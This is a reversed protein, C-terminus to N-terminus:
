RVRPEPQGWIKPKKRTKGPAISKRLAGLTARALPNHDCINAGEIIRAMEEVRREAEPHLRAETLCVAHCCGDAFAEASAQPSNQASCLREFVDKAMDYRRANMLAAGLRRSSALNESSKSENGSGEYTLVERLTEGANRSDGLQVLALILYRGAELIRSRGLKAIEENAQARARWIGGLIRSADQLLDNRRPNQPTAYEVLVCGYLHDGELVEFSDTGGPQARENRVDCLVAFAQPCRGGLKFIAEGLLQGCTIKGLRRMAPDPTTTYGSLAETLVVEAEAYRNQKVMAWGTQYQSRFIRLDGPEFDTKATEWVWRSTSEAMPFDELQGYTLSLYHGVEIIDDVRERRFFKMVGWIDEFVVKAAPYDRLHFCSQSLDMGTVMIEEPLPLCKGKRGDWLPQLVARAEEYKAQCFYLHGLRQGATMIGDCPNEPDWLEWIQRFAKVAEQNFYPISVRKEDETISPNKSLADVQKQTCEALRLGTQVTDRHKSGQLAKRGAWVDKRLGFAKNFFHPDESAGRVELIDCLQDGNEVAWLDAGPTPWTQRLWRELEEYKKERHLDTCRQRYALRCGAAKVDIVTSWDGKAIAEAQKSKAQDNKMRDRAERLGELEVGNKTEGGVKKCEDFLKRCLDKANGYELDGTPKMAMFREVQLAWLARQKAEQSEKLQQALLECNRCVTNASTLGSHQNNATIPLPTESYGMPHPEPPQTGHYGQPGVQQMGPPANQQEYLPGNPLAHQPIIDQYEPPMGLRGEPPRVYQYAIPDRHQVNLPRTYHGDTIVSGKSSASDHHTRQPRQHYFSQAKRVAHPFDAQRPDERREEVHSRRPRKMSSTRQPLRSEHQNNEKLIEAMGSSRQPNAIANQQFYSLHVFKQLPVAHVGVNNAM